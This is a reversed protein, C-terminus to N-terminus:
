PQAGCLEDVRNRLRLYRPDDAIQPFNESTEFRRELTLVLNRRLRSPDMRIPPLTYTTVSTRCHEASKDAKRHYDEAFLLMEELYVFIEDTQGTQLACSACDICLHCLHWYWVTDFDGDHFYLKVMDLVIRKARLQEEPTPYWDTFYLINMLCELSFWQANSFAKARDEVYCLINERCINVPPMSEALQEIKFNMGPHETYIYKLTHAANYRLTNDGCEALITEGWHASEIAARLSTEPDSERTQRSRTHLINCLELLLRYEKPYNKIATRLTNEIEESSVRDGRMKRVDGLIREIELEREDAARGYLRDISVGFYEALKPFMEVDPYSIGSEWRSVAQPTIGLTKAMENQTKNARLRLERIKEGIQIPM